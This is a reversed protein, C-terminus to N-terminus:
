RQGREVIIGVATAQAVASPKSLKLRLWAISFQQQLQEAVQYAVTEILLFPKSAAYDLIFQSVEAYNLCYEVNDEAAARRSDWAMELDFVLKQKIQQEWDYVGITAFVTLKEIFIIDSM